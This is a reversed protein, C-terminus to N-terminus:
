AEPSSDRDTVAEPFVQSSLGLTTIIPYCSLQLEEQM